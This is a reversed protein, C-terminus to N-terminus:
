EYRMIWEVLNRKSLRSMVALTADSWGGVSIFKGSVDLQPTYAALNVSYVTADANRQSLADRVEDHIQMDSFIFINDYTDLSNAAKFASSLNTGYGYKGNRPFKKLMNLIDDNPNAGTVKGATSAFLVVDSNPNVKYMTAAFLNAIEMPSMTGKESLFGQMSGSNDAIILSRGEFPPMNEVSADLAESLAVRVKSTWRNQPVDRGELANWASYFRFPFQQSKHVEEPNSLRDLVIRWSTPDLDAELFNRVNRLTAMYGMDPILASWDAGKSRNREWSIEGSDEGKVAKRIVPLLKRENASLAKWAEKQSGLESWLRVFNFLATQYSNANARAHSIMIAKALSWSHGINANRLAKRENLSTQLIKRAFRAASPIVKGKDSLISVTGLYDGIEDGRYFIQDIVRASPQGYLLTHMGMLAAPTSRMNFERRAVIALQELFEPRVKSALEYMALLEEGAGEYFKGQFLTTFSRLALEMEPSVTVAEGGEHTRTRRRTKPRNANLTSM